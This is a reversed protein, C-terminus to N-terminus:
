AVRELVRLHASQARPNRDCEAEDPSVPRKTRVQFRADVTASEVGGLAHTAFAVVGAGAAIGAVAVAALRSSRLRAPM